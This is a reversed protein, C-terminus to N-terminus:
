FDTVKMESMFSVSGCFKMVESVGEVVEEKVEKALQTVM